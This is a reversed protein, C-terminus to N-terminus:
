RLLPLNGTLHDIKKREGYLALGLYVLEGETRGSLKETFEEYTRCGQALDSFDVATLGEALAKGRLERLLEAQASLVPIPFAIIGRHCGGEQDFVDPGVLDPRLKGLTVGLIAAINAAVGAGLGSPLLIVCKEQRM